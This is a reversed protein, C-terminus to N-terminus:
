LLLITIQCAGILSHQELWQAILWDKQVAYINYFLSLHFAASPCFHSQSSFFLISSQMELQQLKRGQNEKM